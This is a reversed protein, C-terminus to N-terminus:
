PLSAVPKVMLGSQRVNVLGKVRNKIEPLL